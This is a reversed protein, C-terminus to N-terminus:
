GQATGPRENSSDAPGLNPEPRLGREEPNLADNPELCVAKLRVTERELTELLERRLEAEEPGLEQLFRVSGFIAALPNALRHRVLRRYDALARQYEQERLRAADEALELSHVVREMTILLLALVGLLLADLVFGFTQEGRGTFAVTIRDGGRVVFFSTLVVLWPFGRRFRWLHLLVTIALVIEFGGILGDLIQRM